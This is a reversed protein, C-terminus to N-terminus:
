NPKCGKWYADNCPCIEYTKSNDCSNPESDYGLKYCFEEIDGVYACDCKALFAKARLRSSESDSLNNVIVAREECKVPEVVNDIKANYCAPWTNGTVGDNISRFVSNGQCEGSWTYWSIGGGPNEHPAGCKKCYIKDSSESAYVGKWEKGESCTNQPNFTYGSSCTPAECSSIYAKRHEIKTVEVCLRTNCEIYRIGDKDDFTNADCMSSNHINDLETYTNPDEINGAYNGLAIRCEKVSLDYDDYVCSTCEPNNSDHEIKLYDGNCWASKDCTSFGERCVKPLDAHYYTKENSGCGETCSVVNTAGEPVSELNYYTRDCTPKNCACKNCPEGGSYGDTELTPTTSTQDCSTVGTSYGTPCSKKACGCNGSNLWGLATNCVCEGGQETLGAATDCVCQKTYSNYVHCSRCNIPKTCSTCSGKSQNGHTCSYGSNCSCQYHTGNKDSCSKCNLNEDTPRFNLPFKIASCTCNYRTGNRDTCAQCNYGEDTPQSNLPYESTSCACYEYKGDCSQGSPVKGSPCSSVYNTPCTCSKYCYLGQTVMIKTGKKPAPCDSLMNHDSCTSQKTDTGFSGLEGSYNPLWTVGAWAAGSIVIAGVLAVIGTKSFKVM